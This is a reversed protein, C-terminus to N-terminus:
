DMAGLLLNRDDLALPLSIVRLDPTFHREDRITLHPDYALITVDFFRSLRSYISWLRVQGGFVAPYAAFTSLVLMRPKIM